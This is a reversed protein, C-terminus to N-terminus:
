EGKKPFVVLRVLQIHNIDTARGPLKFALPAQQIEAYVVAAGTKAYKDIGETRQVVGLSRYAQLPDLKESSQSYSREEHYAAGAGRFEKTEGPGVPGFELVRQDYLLSGRTLPSSSHNTIRVMIQQNAHEVAATIPMSVDPEENLLCQMSWINIPVASPVCRGDQQWCYFKRGAIQSQPNVHESLGPSIASWWQGSAATDIRYDDSVSAFIGCYTTSWAKGGQVGDVVSVARLQTAGARLAQVGYYAGVTFVVIVCSSTVWTLPLRDLKKLVLYDVPGLLVALLALLGIVWWISLPRLEPISQLYGVVSDTAKGTLGAQYEMGLGYNTSESDTEGPNSRLNLRRGAAVNNMAWIWFRSSSDAKAEPLESPDFALVAVAGFGVPGCAYIVDNGFSTMKWGAAQPQGLTWATVAKVGRGSGGPFGNLPIDVKRPTEVKLPLMETIPSKAPLPRGGLVILVRGGGTVWQAIAQAQKVNLSDWELNYLVLTDLSAYGTWDWPLWVPLKDKVYVKGNGDSSGSTAHEALVALGYGRRGVVGILMDNNSISTFRRSNGSYGWLNESRSWREKGRDDTIALDCSNAAFALKTVLPLHQPTEPAIVQRHTLTTTMQADQPAAFTIRADFPEKIKAVIGIELPTWQMPRYFGDWGISLDVNYQDDAAAATAALFLLLLLGWSKRGM